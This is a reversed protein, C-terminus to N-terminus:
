KKEYKVAETLEMDEFVYFVYQIGAEDTITIKKITTRIDLYKLNDDHEIM